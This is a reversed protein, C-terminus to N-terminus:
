STPTAEPSAEPTGEFGTFLEELTMVPTGQAEVMLRTGIVSGPGAQGTSTGDSEIFELTNQGTFSAGDASVEFSARIKVTGFNTGDENLPEYAVIMLNATRAGTAEWAGLLTSGDGELDIFAGDAHFIFIEPTESPNEPDIDVIWTGVLPHNETATDQATTDRYSLGVAFAGVLVLAAALAFPFLVTSRKM